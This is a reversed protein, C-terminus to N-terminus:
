TPTAPPEGRLFDDLMPQMHKANCDPCVGHSLQADGSETIYHDLDQWFNRDTRAKKCYMCIPIFRALTRNRATLHLIREAVRLRAGMVAEDIPKALFDDVGADMATLWRERGEVGTLLLVYTYPAAIKARLRRTFELGDMGPMLWDTVVLPVPDAALLDLASAGDIAATVEHGLHELVRTLLIRSTPEDDVALIRM